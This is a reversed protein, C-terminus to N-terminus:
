FFGLLNRDAMTTGADVIGQEIATLGIHKGERHLDLASIGEPTYVHMIM